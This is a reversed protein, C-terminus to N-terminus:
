GPSVAGGSSGRPRKGVAGTSSSNWHQYLCGGGGCRLIPLSPPPTRGWGPHPNRHPERLSDSGSPENLERASRRAVRRAVAASPSTPYEDDLLSFIEADRREEGPAGAAPAPSADCRPHLRTAGPDRPESHERPRHPDRHPRRRLMRLVRTDAGRRGRDRLGASAARGFGTDSRSRRRASAATSGPARRDARLRRAGPRAYTWGVGHEFNRRVEDVARSRASRSPRSGPSSWSRRLHELSSDVADKLAARRRARVSAAAPARHRDPTSSRDARDDAYRLGGGHGGRVDGEDPQLRGAAQEVRERGRGEAEPHQRQREEERDLARRARVPCAPERDRRERERGAERRREAARSM